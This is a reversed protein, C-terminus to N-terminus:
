SDILFLSNGRIRAWSRGLMLAEATGRLRPAPRGPRDSSQVCGSCSLFRPLPGAGRGTAVPATHM